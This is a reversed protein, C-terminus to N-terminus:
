FWDVCERSEPCWLRSALTRLSRLNIFLALVLKIMIKKGWHSLCLACFANGTQYCCSRWEELFSFTRASQMQMCTDSFKRMGFFRASKITGDVVIIAPFGSTEKKNGMWTSTSLAERNNCFTCNFNRLMHLVDLEKFFVVM